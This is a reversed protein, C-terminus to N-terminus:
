KLRVEITLIRDMEAFENEMERALNTMEPLVQDVKVIVTGQHPIPFSARVDFQKDKFVRQFESKVYSQLEKNM